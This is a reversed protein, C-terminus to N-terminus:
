EKSKTDLVLTVPGDNILSVKMDAAFIGSGVYGDIDKALQIKFKEYMENAFDPAGAKLYSPRTGKKTSAFLTFQSIVIAEGKIDTVSLNGVGEYNPDEFIRLKSIKASLWNLDENTDDKDVGLLILLGRGIQTTFKGEVKVSAESVRQIVARM